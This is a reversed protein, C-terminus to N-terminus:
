TEHIPRPARTLHHIADVATDARRVGVVDVLSLRARHCRGRGSRDPDGVEGPIEAVPARRDVLRHGTVRDVHQHPVVEGLDGQRRQRGDMMSVGVTPVDLVEDRLQPRM